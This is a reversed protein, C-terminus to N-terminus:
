VEDIIKAFAFKEYIDTIEVRYSEGEKTNPVIIAFNNYKGIGDGKRGKGIITLYIKDKEKIGKTNAEKQKTNKGEQKRNQKM